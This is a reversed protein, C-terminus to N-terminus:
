SVAKAGLGPKAYGLIRANEIFIQIGDTGEFRGFLAFLVPLGHVVAHRHSSPVVRVEIDFGAQELLEVSGSDSESIYLTPRKELM